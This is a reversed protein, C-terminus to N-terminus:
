SGAGPLNALQQTLYNSTQNMRAIMTDLATFQARYRKEINILRQNLAEQQKQNLKIRANIGDSRSALSGNSALFGTALQSLQYAFGQTATVTGRAGLAGGLVQIKLGEASSGGAATLYQGTGTASVGDITGAVDLGATATSGGGFLDNAASGGGSLLAVTSASGYRNSSVTLVGASQSVAVSNGASSLASVGNLRTQVEAALATASAYTGAALTVTADVGDITLSLTDNVGTTITLGAAANGALTGRTAIQTVSLAYQGPKTTSTSSDFKVLSDSAAGTAAFLGALDAFNNNIANNLKTSDITLTGDRQFSVGIQGLASLSGSPTGLASGLTRRLDSQMTRLAADGILLGAQKTNADYKTLDVLAKNLTNYADVMEKVAASIGASNRSVSLNVATTASEKLLSLTVGEIADSITNTSKEIDIGNIKIKANQAAQTETLNKGTGATATPDYAIQSLGSANTHTGDDDTVTIKLGNAAGSDNSSLVLRNGGGDNVITATVGAGAANIADRVGALSQNAAGITITQAAKATNVTFTNGGSDYTGFQLTLTGTGVTDTTNAFSGSYVSQNSALQTVKIAYSGVVAASSATATFVSSDASSASLSRFRAASNVGNVATQFTSVASKLSGFASLQAQLGAEKRMIAQLPQREVAMLQTLIGNIDLNSGIGPSSINAM